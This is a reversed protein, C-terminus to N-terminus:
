LNTPRDEVAVQAGRASSGDFYPIEIKSGSSSVVFDKFYRSISLTMEEALGLIPLIRLADDEPDRHWVDEIKLEADLDIVLVVVAWEDHAL